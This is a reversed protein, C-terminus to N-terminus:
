RPVSLSTVSKNGKQAVSTTGRTQPATFSRARSCDRERHEKSGCILCAGTLRWCEGKHNKGCHSYHPATQGRSAGGLASAVSLAPLTTNRGTAQATPQRSGQPGRFRKRQQQQSSSQSPNKKGQRRDKREKEKKNVREVNLACTVIEYFDDPCFRTVHAQIHDNLGDEFRRCKEKESM